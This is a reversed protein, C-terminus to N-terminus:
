KKMEGPAVELKVGQGRLVDQLEKVNLKRPATGSKASLAAAAGAAEGTVMCTAQDRTAGLALHHGWICRGGVLLNDIKKPVLCGYPIQYPERFPMDPGGTVVGEGWVGTISHADAGRPGGLGIVDEHKGGCMNDKMTIYYECVIRRSERTGAMPAENIIYADEFGPICERLFGLYAKNLKRMFVIARSIDEENTQDFWCEYTGSQM